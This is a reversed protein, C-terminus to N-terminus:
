EKRPPAIRNLHACTLEEATTEGRLLATHVANITL